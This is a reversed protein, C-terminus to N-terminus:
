MDEYCDDPYLGENPDVPATGVGAADTRATPAADVLPPYGHEVLIASWEAVRPDMKVGEVNATTAPEYEGLRNALVRQGYAPSNASAEGVEVAVHALSNRQPAYYTHLTSVLPPVVFRVSGDKNLVRVENTPCHCIELWRTLDREELVGKDDKSLPTALLPLYDRVFLDYGIAPADEVAMENISRVAKMTNADIYTTKIFQSEDM